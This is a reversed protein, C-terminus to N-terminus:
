ERVLKSLGNSKRVKGSVLSIKKVVGESVRWIREGEASKGSVLERTETEEERRM